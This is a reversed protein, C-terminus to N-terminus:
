ECASLDLEYPGRCIIFVSLVYFFFLYTNGLYKDSMSNSYVVRASPISKTPKKENVQVYLTLSAILIIVCAFLVTFTKSFWGTQKHKRKLSKLHEKYIREDEEGLHILRISQKTLIILMSSFVTTLLVFVILCLILVYKEFPTM